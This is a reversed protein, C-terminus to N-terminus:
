RDHTHVGIEIPQGSIRSYLVDPDFDAGNPWQVVGLEANVSAKRFEGIEKLPAFVGHFSVLEAVDVVGQVGDEFRIFLRYAELPKVEVVDRLM